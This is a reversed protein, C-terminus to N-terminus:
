RVVERLSVRHVGDPTTERLLVRSDQIDLPFYSDPMLVSGRAEGGMSMVVWRSVGPASGPMRVWVNGSTDVRLDKIAPAQAGASRLQQRVANRMGEDGMESLVDNIERRNLERRAAAPLRISRVPAGTRDYVGLVASDSSAYIVHSGSADAFGARGFPFQSARFSIADKYLLWEAGPFRRVGGAPEGTPTVVSLHMQDRVLGKARRPDFHNEAAILVSGDSLIAVPRTPGQANQVRFERGFAGSGSWVSFRQAAMDFVIISDGRFRRIWNVSRFEGPGAGQRGAVHILRGTTDFFRLEASGSNGVIVTGDRGILGGFVGDLEHGPEEQSGVQLSPRESLRWSANDAARTAPDRSCGLAVALAAVAACRTPAYRSPLPM